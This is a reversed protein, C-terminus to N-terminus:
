GGLVINGDSQLGITKVTSNPGTGITLTTDLSGDTNVRAFRIMSVGVYASFSGGVLIKGDSQITIDTIDGNAGLGTGTNLSTDLTGDPDLRAIRNSAVGNYTSFLGGIIAKGDMQRQLTLVDSNPGIGGSNFTTDLSGDDNLRRLRAASAGDYNAFKGGILVKGDSQVVVRNLNNDAGTGVDFAPDADWLADM